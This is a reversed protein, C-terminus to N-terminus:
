FIKVWLCSSGKTLRVQFCWHCLIANTNEWQRQRRWYGNTEAATPKNQVQCNFAPPHHTWHLQIIHYQKGLEQHWCNNRPGCREDGEVFGSLSIIAWVAFIFTINSVSVSAALLSHLGRHVPWPSTTKTTIVMMVNFLTFSLESLKCCIKVYVKYNCTAM